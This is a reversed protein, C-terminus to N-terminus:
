QRIAARLEADNLAQVPEYTEYKTGAEEELQQAVRNLLDLYRGM